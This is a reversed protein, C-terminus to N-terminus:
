DLELITTSLPATQISKDIHVAELLRTQYDDDFIIRWIGAPLNVSATKRLPNHIIILDTDKKLGDIFIAIIEKPVGTKLPIVRKKVQVPDSLRLASYRQRILILQKIYDFFEYFEAKRLWDLKNVEDNAKYSNRIDEESAGDVRKSRLFESGAHLFPIGQSTLVVALGLRATRFIEGETAAPLSRVIKDYWTYNDHASLYNISEAPSATFDDLSGRIGSIVNQKLSLKGMVWGQKTGDTDGRLSDRFHDNFVAFHQNKQSGKGAPNALPSASGTWPEGYILLDSKRSRLERVVQQMTPLDILGMLDFRFGDIQFEELWYILSDIIYKRVMPKESAIENGCGSGNTYHGAKDMRYFYEPMFTDFISFPAGVHATHNYVVDMVVKFGANHLAMIMQRFELLRRSDEGHLAYSGEPVNYAVPDYGWNRLKSKDRGTEDVTNFDFVPLLQIVNIGLEKLHALGTKIMKGNVPLEGSWTLALYKGRWEEPGHWYPSISFDRIHLEYIVADTSQQLVPIKQKHWEEPIAKAPDFILSHTSNLALGRSYPDIQRWINEDIRIEYLYYHEQWDGALEATWVGKEM